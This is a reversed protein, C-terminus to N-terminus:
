RGLGAQWNLVVTIPAPADEELPVNILFRQGDRTVEYQGRFGTVTNAGNLM